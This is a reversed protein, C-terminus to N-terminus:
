RGAARMRPTFARPRGPAVREPLPLHALKRPSSVGVAGVRAAQKKRWASPVAERAGARRSAARLAAGARRPAAALAPQWTLPLAPRRVVQRVAGHSARTEMLSVLARTRRVRLSCHHRPPHRLQLEHAVELARQPSAQGYFPTARRSSRTQPACGYRLLMGRPPQADSRASSSRCRTGQWVCGHQAACRSGSPRTRRGAGLTRTLLLRLQLCHRSIRERRAWWRGARALM